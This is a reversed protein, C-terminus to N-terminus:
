ERLFVKLLESKGTGAWAEIVVRDQKEPTQDAELKRVSLGSFKRLIIVLGRIGRDHVLVNTGGSIVTYVLNTQLAWRFCKQLDELNTPECLYEATGGVQWSCYPRLSVNKQILEPPNSM